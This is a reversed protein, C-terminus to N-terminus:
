AERRKWETQSRRLTACTSQNGQLRSFPYFISASLMTSVGEFAVNYAIGDNIISGIPLTANASAIGSVVQQLSLNYRLLDEKRVVVQIERERVGSVEVRSM